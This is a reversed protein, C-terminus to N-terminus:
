QYCGLSPLVYRKYPMEQVYFRAIVQRAKSFSHRVINRMNSYMDLTVEKELM